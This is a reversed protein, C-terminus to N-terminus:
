LSPLKFNLGIRQYHDLLEPLACVTHYYDEHFLLIDGTRIKQQRNYDILEDRTTVFSDRSDVTWNFLTYESFLIFLILRISVKSYPPRFLKPGNPSCDRYLLDDAKEFSRRYETFSCEDTSLHDYLHNGLLHGGGVIERGLEPYKELETGSVFFIAQIGRQQLEELIIPTHVPHPGDDFSLVVGNNKQLRLFYFPVPLCYQLFWKVIYRFM